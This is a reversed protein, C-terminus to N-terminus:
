RAMGGDRECPVVVCQGGVCAQGAVADCVRGCGGCNLPDSNTNVECDDSPNGNCDARGQLCRVACSGYTCVPASYYKFTTGNCAYGCSGCNNPDTALDFCEGFCLPGMCGLSCYTKGSPCMCQPNGWRDPLCDQGAACANGCRGCNERSFLSAECGNKLEGDCNGYGLMCKPEGCRAAFCGFYMNQPPAVAGGVPDCANGCAGCNEDDNRPDVCRTDPDTCLLFGKGCGCGFAGTLRRICSEQPDTCKDGCMSCNDNSGLSVECGNDLVGDCDLTPPYITGDCSMVCKGEVCAFLAGLTPKPCARGCAGCNEPDVMLNVDCRFRSNPCTTLGEPCANSPCYDTLGAEDPVITAADEGTFSPATDRPAVGLDEDSHAACGIFIALLTLAVVTTRLKM